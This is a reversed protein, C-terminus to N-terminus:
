RLRGKHVFSLAKSTIVKLDEVKLIAGVQILGVAASIVVNPDVKSKKCNRLEERSKMLKLVKDAEEPTTAKDSLTSILEDMKVEAHSRKDKKTIKPAM